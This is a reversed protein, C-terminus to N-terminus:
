AALHSDVRYAKQASWPRCFYDADRIHPVAPHNMLMLMALAQQGARVLVPLTLGPTLVCIHLM